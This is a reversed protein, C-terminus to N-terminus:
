DPILMVVLTSNCIYSDQSHQVDVTVTHSGTTVINTSFQLTISEKYYSSPYIVEVKAMPTVLHTGDINFWVKVYSVGRLKYSLRATSTFCFYVTTHPERTFQITLEPYSSIMELPGALYVTSDEKYWIKPETYDEKFDLLDEQVQNTTILSYAGIGLGSAGLILGLVTLASSVKGM